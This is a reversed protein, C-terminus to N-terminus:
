DLPLRCACSTWPPLFTERGYRRAMGSNDLGHAAPLCIIGNAPACKTWCSSSIVAIFSLTYIGCVSRKEWFHRKLCSHLWMILSRDTWSGDTLTMNCCRGSCIGICKALQRISYMMSIDTLRKRMELSIDWTM